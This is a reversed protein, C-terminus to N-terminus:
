AAGPPYNRRNTCSFASVGTLDDSELQAQGAETFAVLGYLSQTVSNHLDRAVRQREALLHVRQAEQRLHHSRVIVAIQDAITTLLTVEETAFALAAQRMVGVLGLIQGDAQLPVLLLTQPIERRMAVPVRPDTAIDPILLSQHSALVAAFLDSELPSVDRRSFLIPRSARKAAIRLQGKQDPAADKAQLLIAGVESRLATLTTELAADLFQGQDEIRAAAASVEYLATLERARDAVRMELTANLSRLADDARQRESNEQSLAANVQQLDITRETVRLELEAYAVHLADESQKHVTIDRALLLRGRQQDRDYSLPTVTVDLCRREAGTELTIEAHGVGPARIAAALEPVTEWYEIADRGMIETTRVGLCTEAAPNLDVVRNRDDLVLMGDSMHAIATGRATPVLEFGDFRFLALFYMMYATMALPIVLDFPSFTGRYADQIVYAARTTIQALLVMAVPGRHSPSRIFLWVLIVWTLLVLLYGYVALIPTAPGDTVHVIGRADVWLRTWVWTHAQNTLNLLVLVVPPVALLALTPRTLWKGLGAYQLAFCLSVSVASLAAVSQVQEWFVKAAFVSSASQLVGAVVWLTGTIMMGIFSLAGAVNRRRWAYQGLTVAFVISSLLVWGYTTYANPSTM